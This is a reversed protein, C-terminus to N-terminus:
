GCSSSRIQTSARFLINCFWSTPDVWILSFLQTRSFEIMSAEELLVYLKLYIVDPVFTKM